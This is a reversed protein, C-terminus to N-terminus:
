PVIFLAFFVCSVLWLVSFGAFPHPLRFVSELAGLPPTARWVSTWRLHLSGASIMKTAHMSQQSNCFVHFATYGWYLLECCNQAYENKRTQGSTEPRGGRQKLIHWGVNGFLKQQFNQSILIFYMFCFLISGMRFIIARRMVVTCAEWTRLSPDVAGALNGGWLREEAHRLVYTDEWLFRTRLPPDRGGGYSVTDASFDSCFRLKNFKVHMCLAATFSPASYASTPRLLVASIHRASIVGCPMFSGSEKWLPSTEKPM